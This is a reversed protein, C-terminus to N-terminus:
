KGGGRMSFVAELVEAVVQDPTSAGATVGITLDGDPLWDKEIVCESSNQPKHKIQNGPGICSPGDIHFSRIKRHDAIEHL